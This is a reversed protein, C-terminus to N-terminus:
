CRTLVTAKEVVLGLRTSESIGDGRDRQYAHPLCAVELEYLSPCPLSRGASKTPEQPHPHFPQLPSQRSRPQAGVARHHRQRDAGPKGPDGLLRLAPDNRLTDHDNLDKYGLAIATIRQALLDPLLHKIRVPDRADNFCGAVREWLNVRRATKRLLLGGADSTIEGGDFAAIVTRSGFDSFQM